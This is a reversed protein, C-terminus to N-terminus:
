RLLRAKASAMILASLLTIPEELEPPQVLTKQCCNSLHARARTTAGVHPGGRCRDGSRRRRNGVRLAGVDAGYGRSGDHTFRDHRQGESLGHHLFKAAVVNVFRAVVELIIQQLPYINFSFGEWRM